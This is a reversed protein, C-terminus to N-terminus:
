VCRDRRVRRSRCLLIAGASLCIIMTPEPVFFPFAVYPDELAPFSTFSSLAETTSFVGNLRTGIVIRGNAAIDIDRTDANMNVFRIQHGDADYETIGNNGTAFMHGAANAVIDNPNSSDPTLTVTRLLTLTAPDFVQVTHTPDGNDGIVYLLGDIGVNVNRSGFTTSMQLATGDRTDFRIVGRATDNQTAADSVFVYPGYCTLGAFRGNNGIAWGSYNIHQWSNNVPDYLSLYPTFTGNFVAVKGSPTITLDRTRETVDRIGNPWPVPITQVLTGTPTYERVQNNTSVLVDAPNFTVAALAHKGGVVLAVSIICSSHHMVKGGPQVAILRAVQFTAQSQVSV